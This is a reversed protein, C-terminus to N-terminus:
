VNGGTTKKPITPTRLWRRNLQREQEKAAAKVEQRILRPLVTGSAKGWAQDHTLGLERAVAEEIEANKRVVASGDSLPRTSQKIIKQTNHYGHGIKGAMDKVTM